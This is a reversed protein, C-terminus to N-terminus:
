EPLVTLGWGNVDAKPSRLLKPEVSDWARNSQEPNIFHLGIPRATLDAIQLGISNTKKDAFIIELGMKSKDGENEDHRIRQFASELEGDGSKGRSEIIIHAMRDGGERAALFGHLREICSGLALEYVESALVYRHPLRRKDLVVTIITFDVDKIIRAIGEMFHERKQEDRSFVFPWRHRRIENEHLVVMDHGFHEFKFATVAPLVSEAYEDKRFVCFNLVFVPYNADISAPNPDGSEDAYIIYDSYEAGASAM